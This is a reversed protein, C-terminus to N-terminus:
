LFLRWYPKEENSAAADRQLTKEFRVLQKKFYEADPNAEVIKEEIEIAEPIRQLKFLVEAKTDLYAENDPDFSLGKDILDLAKNLDKGQEAYLWALENYSESFLPQDEIAQVLLSEKTSPDLRSYEQKYKFYTPNSFVM